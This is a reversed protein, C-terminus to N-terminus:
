KTRIPKTRKTFVEGDVKTVSRVDDESFDYIYYDGKVYSPSGDLNRLRNRGVKFDGDITNPCGELSQLSPTDIVCNGGIYEPLGVLTKFPNSGVSFNKGVYNPCGVLSSLLNSTIDFNGEVHYPAGKLTELINYNLIFDGHIKGFNFPLRSHERMDSLNVTELVDLEGDNSYKYKTIGYEEPREKLLNPLFRSTKINVLKNLYDKNKEVSEWTDGDDLSYSLPFILNTNYSVLVRGDRSGTFIIGECKKNFQSINKYCWLAIESSFGPRRREVDLEGYDMDFFDLQDYIFSYNSCDYGKRKLEKFNPSKVFETYDFVIFNEISVSFKVIINGYTALMDTGMQSELDYTGYFGKGYMDGEGPKFGSTYVANVLDSFSTRHYVSALNGYIKEEFKRIKIM